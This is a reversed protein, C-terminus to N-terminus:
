YDSLFYKSSDEDYSTDQFIKKFENQINPPFDLLDINNDYDDNLQKPQWMNAHQKQKTTM